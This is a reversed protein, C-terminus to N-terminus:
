GQDGKFVYEDLITRLEGSQTLRRIVNLQELHKQSINKKTKDFLVNVLEYVRSRFQKENEYWVKQSVERTQFLLNM